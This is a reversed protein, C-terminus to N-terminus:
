NGSNGEYQAFSSVLRLVLVKWYPYGCRFIIPIAGAHEGNCQIDWDVTSFINFSSLLNECEKVNYSGSQSESRYQARMSEICDFNTASYACITVSSAIEHIQPVTGDTPPLILQAKLPYIHFM